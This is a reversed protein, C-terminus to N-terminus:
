FPPFRSAMDLLVLILLIPLGILILLGWARWASFGHAEGICKLMTFFAWISLIITIVGTIMLVLGLGPSRDLVPKKSTFMERGILDIQLFWILITALAPVQSWAIAARLEESSGHGGLRRGAWSILAGGIDIGILGFILGLLVAMILIRALPLQDGAHMQAARGLAQIVGGAMALPLVLYTPNTNLIGRITARPRTWITLFPNEVSLDIGRTKSRGVDERRLDAKPAAYPNMEDIPDVNAM